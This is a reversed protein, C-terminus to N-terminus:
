GAEGILADLQAVSAAFDVRQNLDQRLFEQVAPHAAIASDIRPDSGARYAGIAVLDRNHEYTSLLRKLHRAQQIQQPPVIDHM